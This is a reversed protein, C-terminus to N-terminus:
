LVNRNTYYYGKSKFYTDLHQFAGEKGCDLIYTLIDDVDEPDQQKLFTVTKELGAFVVLQIDFGCYTDFDVTKADWIRLCDEVQQHLGLLYSVFMMPVVSIPDESGWPRDRYEILKNLLTLLLERNSRQRFYEVIAPSSNQEDELLRLLDLTLINDAAFRDLAEPVTTKM